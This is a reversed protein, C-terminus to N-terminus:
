RESDFARHCVPRAHHSRGAALLHAVQGLTAAIGLVATPRGAVLCRAIIARLELEDFAETAPLLLLHRTTPFPLSLNLASAVLVALEPLAPVAATTFAFPQVIAAYMRALLCTVWM